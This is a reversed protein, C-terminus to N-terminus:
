VTLRPFLTTANSNKIAAMDQSTFSGYRNVGEVTAPIAAETAFPYDSGFLVQSSDCVALLSAFTHPSASLATDYYFRGLYHDPGEPLNEKIKLYVDLDEPLKERMGPIVSSVWGLGTAVSAATGDLGEFLSYLVDARGAIYPTAGGAHALIFRVDPCRRTIGNVVLSIATRTTDFCVYM